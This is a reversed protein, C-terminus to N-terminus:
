RGGGSGWRHELAFPKFCFGKSFACGKTKVRPDEWCGFGDKQMLRLAEMHSLGPYHKHLCNDGFPLIPPPPAQLQPYVHHEKHM